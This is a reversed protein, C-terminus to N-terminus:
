SLRAPPARGPLLSYDVPAFIPAPTLVETLISAPPVSTEIVEVWSDMKGHHIMTVPCNGDDKPITGGHLWAHLPPHIEAVLM